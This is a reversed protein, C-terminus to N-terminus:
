QNKNLRKGCSCCWDASGSNTANCNHCTATRSTGNSLENWPNGKFLPREGPRLEHEIEFDKEARIRLDVGWQWPLQERTGRAMQKIFDEYAEISQFRIECSHSTSDLNVTEVRLKGASGCDIFDGVAPPTFTKATSVSNNMNKTALKSGFKQIYVLRSFHGTLFGHKDHTPIFYWVQNIKM